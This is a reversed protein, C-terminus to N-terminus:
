AVSRGLLALLRQPHNRGLESGALQHRDTQRDPPDAVRNLSAIQVGTHELYGHFGQQHRALDEAPSGAAAWLACLRMQAEALRRESALRVTEALDGVLMNVRQVDALTGGYARAIAEEVLSEKLGIRLDGTIIKIIYKAELPTARLLLDRVIVTKSAPGRAAAIQRFTKEVELLGLGQGSRERHVLLLLRFVVALPLVVRQELEPLDPKGTSEVAVEFQGGSGNRGM